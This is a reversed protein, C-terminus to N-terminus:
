LEREIPILSIFGAAFRKWRTSEPEKTWVQTCGDCDLRWTIRGKEDLELRYANASGFEENMRALASRGFEEGYVILAIESNWVYSRPDMNFCGIVAMGDMTERTPILYATQITVTRDAREFIEDGPAPWAHSPERDYSRPLSACGALLIALVCPVIRHM